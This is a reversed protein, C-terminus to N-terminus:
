NMSGWAVLRAVYHIDVTNGFELRVRGLGSLWLDLECDRDLTGATEVSFAQIRAYPLSTFDQKKGTMGQVNVVIIRKNTFVVYDRIGKAALLLDEGELLLPAVQAHLTAPDARNLKVFTANNFDIM